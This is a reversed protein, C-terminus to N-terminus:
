VATTHIILPMPLPDLRNSSPISLVFLKTVSLASLQLTGLHCPAELQPLPYQLGLSLFPIHHSTAASYRSALTFGYLCGRGPWTEVAETVVIPELFMDLVCGTARSTRRWFLKYDLKGVKLHPRWELLITREGVVSLLLGLKRIGGIDRVLCGIVIGQWSSKRTIGLARVLKKHVKM